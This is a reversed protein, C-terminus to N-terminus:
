PHGLAVTTYKFYTSHLIYKRIYDSLCNSSFDESSKEVTDIKIINRDFDIHHARVANSHLIYLSCM